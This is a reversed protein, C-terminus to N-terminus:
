EAIERIIEQPLRGELLLIDGASLRNKLIQAIKKPNDCFVINKADMGGALAGKKIDGFREKATIIALDCVEAIKQGIEFHIKKSENGLEILCPMIIARKGEWLKLYDLHAMVGDPNASYTSDLVNFNSNTSTQGGSLPPKVEVLIKKINFPTFDTQNVIAAVAALEMGASAASAISLIITEAMWAGKANTDIKIKQDQYNLIFSLNDIKTQVESAFIDKGAFIIKQANIKNKKVDYNDRVLPSAFNLIAAGNEPLAELLEFKADVINKQSGFVGLHQQSIGTLIGIRPKAIGATQAIKGKHVAGIECVFIQHEPKLDNIITQSVGMETNQNARTKLVKYKQSLIHALLEKVGSKGYSGAIGIVSLDTRGKIIERAQNLIKNKKWITLPQLGLVVLSIILPMLIDIVMLCFASVAFHILSMEGLLLGFIALGSGFVVFHAAAILFVSKQTLEPHILNHRFIGWFTRVGQLLYLVLALGIILGIKHVFYYYGAFFLLAAIKGLFLPNLFISKGKRTEFHALFRGPHYEKLQWLYLWFLIQRHMALMWFAFMGLYYFLYPYAWLEMIKYIGIEFSL